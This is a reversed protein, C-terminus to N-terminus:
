IEINKELKFYLQELKNSILFRWSCTLLAYQESRESNSYITTIIEFIKCIETSTKLQFKDNQISPFGRSPSTAFNRSIM